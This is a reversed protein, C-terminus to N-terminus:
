SKVFIDCLTMIAKYYRKLNKHKQTEETQLLKKTNRDFIFSYIKHDTFNYKIAKDNQIVLGDINLAINDTTNILDNGFSVYETDYLSLNYLTPMIDMHSGSVSTDIHKTKLKEPIYLYFPVSSCLFKDEKSYSLLERLSHDGTVAIITNDAFKSKKIYSIFKALERNAFQYLTFLVKINLDKVSMTKAIEAPIELPLAPYKRSMKYPAHTGTTVAFIFKPKGNQNEILYHKLNKFFCDDKVGWEHKDKKQVQMNEEGIVEKFGQTKFFSGIDRWKKINGGYFAVTHYGAKKYPIVASAQFSDPKQSSQIINISFPRPPINLIISEVGQVTLFGAPLFNYFVTDQEFHNKLEGMVDFIPSNYLVPMEGFSEMVILIVNPNMMKLTENESGTKKIYYSQLSDINRKPQFFKLDKFIENDDKYEFLIRLDMINKSNKIKHYELDILSYVPNVCLLNIFSDPSIQSHFLSLPLKSLTGRASIFQIAIILVISFIKKPTKWYSTNIINNDSQLRRYGRLLVKYIFFCVVGLLIIVIYIRYDVIITRLLATIDENFINLIFYNYHDKCYSFFGFDFFLVFFLLWCVVLYYYKIVPPILKLIFDKKFFLYFLLTLTVPINIYALISLDFRFGMWFAKLIYLKLSSIEKFDAFYLLFVFRFLTMLSMMLLNIPIIILFGNLVANFGSKKYM